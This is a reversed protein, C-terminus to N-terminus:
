DDGIGAATQSVAYEWPELHDTRPPQKVPRTLETVEMDEDEAPDSTDMWSTDDVDIIDIAETDQM